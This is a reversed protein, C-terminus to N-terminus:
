LVKVAQSRDAPVLRVVPIVAYLGLRRQLHTKVAHTTRLAVDRLQREPQTTAVVKVVVRQHRRSRITVQPDILGLQDALYDALEREVSQPSFSRLGLKTKFSMASIWRSVLWGIGLLSLGIVAVMLGSAGGPFLGATPQFGAALGLVKLWWGSQYIGLGMLIVGMAGLLWKYIPRM